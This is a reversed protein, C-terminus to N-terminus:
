KRNIPEQSEGWVGLDNAGLVTKWKKTIITIKGDGTKHYETEISVGDKKLNNFFQKLDDNQM